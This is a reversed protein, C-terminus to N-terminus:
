YYVRTFDIGWLRQNNDYNIPYKAKDVKAMLNSGKLTGHVKEYAVLDGIIKTVASDQKEVCSNWAITNRVGKTDCHRKALLM